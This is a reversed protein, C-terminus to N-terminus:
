VLLMVAMIVMIINEFLTVFTLPIGLKTGLCACTFKQKKQLAIGVGIAGIGMIVITVINVVELWVGVVYGIGLLLELFPYVHAYVKSRKAILDYKQFGMAFGKVDILKFASFIIFFLGMYFTMKDFIIASVSGALLVLGLITAKTNM